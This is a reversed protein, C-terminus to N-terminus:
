DYKKFIVLINATCITSIYSPGNVICFIFRFLYDLFILLSFRIISSISKVKIYIPKQAHLRLGSSISIQELSTSTPLWDHTFDAAFYIQSLPSYGNPFKLIISGDKKLIKSLRFFLDEIKNKPLHEIVDILIILDFNDKCYDSDLYEFIDKHIVNLSKKKALDVQKSSIDIGLINCKFIKALYQMLNGEGCGIELVNIESNSKFLSKYIYNSIMKYESPIYNSSKGRKLSIYNKYIQM